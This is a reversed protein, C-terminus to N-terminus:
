SAVAPASEPQTPSAIAVRNRGARKARYMALDAREFLAAGDYTPSCAVGASLTVSLPVASEPALTRWNADNVRLRLRDCVAFAEDADRGPLVMVFEEGGTRAVIDDGATHELLLRAVQVLVRDGVTHGYVDNIRKFQDLDIVVLSVRDGAASAAALLKPLRLDLARRNGLQTLEDQLMLLEFQTARTSQVRATEYAQKLLERQTDEAEVRTVMLESRARLQETARRSEMRRFTELQVLAHTSNNARQYSLYLAYHLRLRMAVTPPEIGDRPAGDNGALFALAATAAGRAVLDLEALSCQVRSLLTRFGGARAAALARGLLAEAEALQGTQLLLEGLNSIAFTDFFADNLSPSLAVVERALVVSDHLAREAEAAADGGRLWYFKDTLVVTLNNLLVVLAYPNAVERAGPLADRLVREAQWPDGSRGFAAGLQSLALVAGSPDDQHKALQWGETAYKIGLDFRDVDVACVGIWRVTEAYAANLGESKLLPLLAQGLAIAQDAAGTRYLFFCTVHGAAAQDRPTGFKAAAYAREATHLADALAPCARAAALLDAVAASVGSPTAALPSTVFPAAHQPAAHQPAAQQPHALPHTPRM